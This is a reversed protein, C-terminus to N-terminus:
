NWINVFVADLVYNLPRYVYKWKVCSKLYPVRVLKQPEIALAFLLRHSFRRREQWQVKGGAIAVRSRMRERIHLPVNSFLRGLHKM